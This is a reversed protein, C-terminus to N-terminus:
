VYLSTRNPCDAWLEMIINYEITNEDYQLSYDIYESGKHIVEITKKASANCHQAM